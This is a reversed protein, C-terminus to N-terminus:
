FPGLGARIRLLNREFDAITGTPTEAGRIILTYLIGSFPLSSGGRRGIYIAANSYNGSGQDTTVTNSVVGNVRTESIDGSINGNGSVVNTIPAAFDATSQAARVTTGKSAFTWRPGTVSPPGALLYWSGNNAGVDATLEAIIGVAADSNKRVGAMVTMKDTASFDISATQLFDDSGDFLLGWCDRKGAETVDQTVTVRQYTSPSSGSEFQASAVHITKNLNDAAVGWTFSSTSAALYVRVSGSLDGAVPSVNVSCRYWGNGVSTITAGGTPTTGNALDFYAVSTSAGTWDTSLIAAFDHNGKKLYFSQNYTGAVPATVVQSVFVSTSGGGGVLTDANQEGFPGVEANASVTLGSKGWAANDFQESYLLLNRLGGDPTRCLAPRPSGATPQYAHNGPIERVSINDLSLTTGTATAEFILSADASGALVFVRYTGNASFASTRNGGSYIRIGGSSFGTVTFTVQYYKGATLFSSRYVGGNLAVSTYNALGSSITVNTTKVWWTDTDFGGNTVLEPGLNELGGKSSDIVLGVVDGPSVAASVGNSDQYLSHTPHALKFETHFDTIPQYASPTTTDREYQFGWIHVTSGSGSYSGDSFLPGNFIALAIRGYGAQGSDNWFSLRWWGNGVNEPTTYGDIYQTNVSGANTYTGTDFDFILQNEGFNFSNIPSISIYRATGKKVYYSRCAKVGATETSFSSHLIYHLGSTADDTLTDATTTGDPAVQTNATITANLKTWAANSFQDSYTLLNRRWTRKAESAGYRDGIDLALGPENSAFLTRVNPAGSSDMMMLMGM